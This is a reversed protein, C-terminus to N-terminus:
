FDRVKFYFKEIVNKPKYYKLKKGVSGTDIKSDRWKKSVSGTRLPLNLSIDEEFNLTNKYLTILRSEVNNQWHMKVFDM